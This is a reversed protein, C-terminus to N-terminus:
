LSVVKPNTDVVKKPAKTQTEEVGQLLKPSSPPSSSLAQRHKDKRKYYDDLKSWHEICEVFVEPEAQAWFQDAMQQTYDGAQQKSSHLILWPAAVMGIGVGAILPALLPVSAAVGMTAVGMTKANGIATSHLFVDAQLNNWYGTKCFVAICESNSHFVHYPPLVSEGHHLLWRTRALVLKPPDAKPLDLKKKTKSSEQDTTAGDGGADDDTTSKKRFLSGNFLRGGKKSADADAAAAAEKAQKEEMLRAMAPNMSCNSFAPTNEDTTSTSEMETTPPAAGPGADGEKTEKPTNVSTDEGQTSSTEKSMGDTMKKWWKGGNRNSSSSSADGEGVSIDSAAVTATDTTSAASLKRLWKGSGIGSYKEPTSSSPGDEEGGDAGGGESVSSASKKGMKIKNWWSKKGTTGDATSGEGETTSDGGFGFLGKEYNVKKWKSWEKPDELVVVNLRQKEKKTGKGKGNMNQFSQLIKKSQKSSQEMWDKRAREVEKPDSSFWSAKKKKTNPSLVFPEDECDDKTEEVGGGGGPDATTSSADELTSSEDIAAAAAGAPAPAAALGFDVLVVADESCSLVIGHIQIPWAIPLMEWRIVHDGPQFNHQPNNDISITDLEDELPRTMTNSATSPDLKEFTTTTGNEAEAEPAATAWPDRLLGGNNNPSSVVEKNINEEMNNVDSHSSAEEDLLSPPSAADDEIATSATAEKAMMKLLQKSLRLVSVDRKSKQKFTRISSSFFVFRVFSLSSASRLVCHEVPILSGINFEHDASPPSHTDQM